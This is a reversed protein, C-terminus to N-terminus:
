SLRAAAVGSMISGVAARDIDGRSVLADLLAGSGDKMPASLSFYSLYAVQARLFPREELLQREGRTLVGAELGKALATDWAFDPASGGDTYGLARLVFTVYEGATITNQTGFVQAGSASTGVGRTYGREYAYSVYGQCWAPVDSFPCPGTHALAAQEEGLLRLFMILGEIRTPARELDYGSGYSLDGGQFMGMGKLADALANYDVEASPTFAYRGELCIVATDSTIRVAASTNEAALYRHRVSLSTGSPVTQGATVDIVAGTPFSVSASGALVMVTSGASLTFLDQRKVRRDTLASSAEGAGSPQGTYSAHRANLDNLAEQYIQGTRSDVRKGAQAAADPLYSQTLYQLSVLPDSASGGSAYVAACGALVLGALVLTFIKKM